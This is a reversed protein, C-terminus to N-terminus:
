LPRKTKKRWNGWRVLDEPLVDNNTIATAAAFVNTQNIGTVMDAAIGLTEIDALALAINWPGFKLPQSIEKENKDM